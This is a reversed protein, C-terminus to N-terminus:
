GWNKPPFYIRFLADWDFSKENVASAKKLSSASFRERFRRDGILRMLSQALDEDKECLYGTVGNEVLPRLGDISTSVIPVGLTMAELAAMPMGEWESTMLMAGANKLIGYPNELFGLFDINVDSFEKNRIELLRPLENGDGIFAFRASPFRKAVAGFVRLAREPNKPYSLRGLFVADYSVSHRCDKVRAWLEEKCVTNELIVSKARFRKEFYYGNRASETVWILTRAKRAAILYLVSRLSFRRSDRADNHIHSILTTKGCAFAAFVSARVDHAHIMDPSLTRVMKRIERVSMKELPYFQIKRKELVRSIEGCPSCYIVQIDTEARTKEIIHCAVNEAGSFSNSSLIHVIKM